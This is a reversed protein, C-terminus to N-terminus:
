AVQELWHLGRSTGQSDGQRAGPFLMFCRADDVRHAPEQVHTPVGGQRHREQRIELRIPTGEARHLMPEGDQEFIFYTKVQARRWSLCGM